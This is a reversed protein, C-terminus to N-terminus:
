PTFHKFFQMQADGGVRWHSSLHRVYSAEFGVFTGTIVNSGGVVYGSVENRHTGDFSHDGNYSTAVAITPMMMILLALLFCSKNRLM